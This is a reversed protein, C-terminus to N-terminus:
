DKWLSEPVGMARLDDPPFGTGLSLGQWQGNVRKMFVIAPDGEVGVPEVFLRAYDGDVRASQIAITQYASERLVYARTAALLAEDAVTTTTPTMATSSASTTTAPAPAPAATEREPRGCAALALALTLTLITLRHM